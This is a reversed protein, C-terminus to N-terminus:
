KPKRILLVISATAATVAFFTFLAIQTDTFMADSIEFEVEDEPRPVLGRQKAKRLFEEPTLELCRAKRVEWFQYSKILGPLGIIHPLIAIHAKKQAILKSMHEHTPKLAVQVFQGGKKRAVKIPRGQQDLCIRYKLKGEGFKAAARFMGHLQGYVPVFSVATDGLQNFIVELEQERQLQEPTM